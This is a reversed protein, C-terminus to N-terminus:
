AFVAKRTTRGCHECTCGFERYIVGDRKVPKIGQRADHGCCTWVIVREQGHWEYRPEFGASSPHLHIENM